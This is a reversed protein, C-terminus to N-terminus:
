CKGEVLAPNWELLDKTRVRKGKVGEPFHVRDGGMDFRVGATGAGWAVVCVLGGGGWCSGIVGTVMEGSSRKIQVPTHAVTAASLRDLTGDAEWGNLMRVFDSEIEM